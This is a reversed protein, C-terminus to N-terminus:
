KGLPSGGPGKRDGGGFQYWLAMLLIIFGVITIITTVITPLFGYQEALAAVGLIIVDAFLLSRAKPNFKKASQDREDALISGESRNYPNSAPKSRHKRRKSM